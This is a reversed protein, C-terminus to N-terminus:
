RIRFSEKVARKRAKDERLTVKHIGRSTIFNQGKQLWYRILMIYLLRPVVEISYM